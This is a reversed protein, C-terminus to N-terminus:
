KTIQGKKHLLRKGIELGVEHGNDNVDKVSFEDMGGAGPMCGFKDNLNKLVILRYSSLVSKVM